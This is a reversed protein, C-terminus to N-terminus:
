AWADRVETKDRGGAVPRLGGTCSDPRPWKCLVDGNEPVLRRSM